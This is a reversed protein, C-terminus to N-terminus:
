IIGGHSVQEDDGGSVVSTIGIILMKKKMREMGKKSLQIIIKDFITKETFRSVTNKKFFRWFEQCKEIRM